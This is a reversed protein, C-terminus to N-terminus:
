ETDLSLPAPLDAPAPRVALTVRSTACLGGREDHFDVDWVWTSRGRHRPRAEARLMGDTVPRLFHTANEMGVALRGQGYVAANTAESAIFEALASYAGGHVLGFRQRIRNTVPIRARAVDGSLEELRMGLVGDLADELPIERPVLRSV